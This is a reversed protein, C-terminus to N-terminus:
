SRSLMKARATSSANCPKPTRTTFVGTRAGLRISVAFAQKSADAPLAQVVEDWEPLPTELSEQLLIDEM